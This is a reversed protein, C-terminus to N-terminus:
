DNAEENKDQDIRCSVVVVVLFCSDGRAALGSENASAIPDIQYQVASAKHGTQTLLQYLLNSVIELTDGGGRM